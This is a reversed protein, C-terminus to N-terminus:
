PEVMALAREAVDRPAISNMIRCGGRGCTEPSYGRSPRGYCPARCEARGERSTLWSHGPYPRSIVEGSTCGFLGLTPVGLAGALHLIGTDAAIVMDCAAVAGALEGWPLRLSGLAGADAPSGEDRGPRPCKWSHFMVLGLGASRLLSGLERLRASGLWSRAAHTAYPALGVVPRQGLARAFRERARALDGRPLDLRPTSPRVGAARAFLEVRDLTVAGDTEVEHRYAPCYLDIMNTNPEFARLAALYPHRAPTPPEDRRRRARETVIHVADVCGSLRVLDEYGALCVYEVRSAPDRGELARDNLAQLVPFTRVVDGMGGAERLILHRM